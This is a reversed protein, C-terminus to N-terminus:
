DWAFGLYVAVLVALITMGVVAMLPILLSKIDHTDM